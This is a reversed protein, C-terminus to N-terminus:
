CTPATCHAKPPPAPPQSTICDPSCLRSRHLRGTLVLTLLGVSVTMASEYVARPMPQLPTSPTDLTPSVHQPTAEELHLECVFRVPAHAFGYDPVFLITCHILCLLPNLLAIICVLLVSATQLLHAAPTHYFISSPRYRM